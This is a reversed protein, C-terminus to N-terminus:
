AAIRDPLSPASDPDSVAGGAVVVLPASQAAARIGGDPEPPGDRHPGLSWGRRLWLLIKIALFAVFVEGGFLIFLPM